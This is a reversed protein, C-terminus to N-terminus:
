LLLTTLLLTLVSSVVGGLLTFLLYGCWRVVKRRQTKAAAVTPAIEACMRRAEEEMGDASQLIRKAERLLATEGEAFQEKLVFYVERFYLSEPTRIRVMQRTTGKM